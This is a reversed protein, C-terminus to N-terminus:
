ALSVRQFPEGRYRQDVDCDSDRTLIEAVGLRESHVVLTLDAFDGPLDSYRRNLDAVRIDDEALLQIAEIATRGLAGLLRSRAALVRADGPDGLLWLVEAICIPLAILQAATHDFFAVVRPHLPESRQDDCVLIGCDVLIRPM